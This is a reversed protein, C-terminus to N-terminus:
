SSGARAKGGIGKYFFVRYVVYIIALTSALSCIAGTSSKVRSKCQDRFSPSGQFGPSPTGDPFYAQPPPTGRPDVEDSAMSCLPSLWLTDIIRETDIVALLTSCFSFLAFFGILWKLKSEM